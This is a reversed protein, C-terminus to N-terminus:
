IGREPGLITDMDGKGAKLTPHPCSVLRNDAMWPICLWFIIVMQEEDCLTCQVHTRAHMQRDTQRQTDGGM